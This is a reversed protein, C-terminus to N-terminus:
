ISGIADEVVARATAMVDDVDDDEAYIRMYPETGSPRVLVWGGERLEVRVGYETDVDTADFRGPLEAGIREMAPEKVAESCPVSEKRYPREVVESTLREIGGVEAALASVLAASVIADIWGGFAPHVHKWPEAAFVVETGADAAARERAIGEHLQGLAVRETRGGAAAVREDIRGSANPTTVVVPDAITSEAATSEDAAGDGTRAERVYREAIVALVTDEHVVSGGCDVVALRDGDGDHAIGIEADESTAVFRRLATLSEPTPKSERAPFAGDVNANLAVPEAGLAGLVQPTALGAVGNGCDVAVRAGSLADVADSFHERVYSAVASRYADLVNGDRISGWADWQVPRAGDQVLSEVRAEAEADYEVGDQFLKIGNDNPPNHSATIMLGRRGRSAFALAPTPVRGLREVAAGGSALGAAAAAALGESTERGDIGLAFAPQDTAADSPPGRSGSPGSSGSRGGSDSTGGSGSQGGSDSSGGTSGRAHRAAARGVALALEPDVTEAVDGRIGATGFLSM